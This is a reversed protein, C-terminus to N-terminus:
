VILDNFYNLLTGTSPHVGGGTMVHVFNYMSYTYSGKKVLKLSILLFTKMCIRISSIFLLESLVM